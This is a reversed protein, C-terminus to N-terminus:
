LRAAPLLPLLDKQHIAADVLGRGRQLALEVECHLKIMSLKPWMTREGMNIKRNIEDLDPNQFLMRVDKLSFPPYVTVDGTQPQDVVNFVEPVARDRICM